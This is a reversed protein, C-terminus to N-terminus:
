LGPLELRAGALISTTQPETDPKFTPFDVASVTLRIRHGAEFRHANPWLRVAAEAPFPAEFSHCGRWILRAGDPGVDWVKGAIQFVRLATTQVPLRLTPAGTVEFPATVPTSTFTATDIPNPSEPVQAILDGMGPARGLIENTIADNALNASALDNVIRAVETGAAPPSANLAGDSALYTTMPATVLPWDAAQQHVWTGPKGAETRRWYDVQPGGLFGHDVGRLFQDLWDLMAAERAVEEAPFNGNAAHGGSSFWYHVPVGRADLPELIQEPHDGPFLQDEWAQTWFVPIQLDDLYTLPSRTAVDDTTSLGAPPTVDETDTDWTAGWRVALDDQTKAATAKYAAAFIGTAFSFKFCDNPNLAMNLDAFTQGVAAAKVRHDAAAPLLSEGGGQSYGTVGVNDTDIRSGFTAEVWDLVESFDKTTRAGFFDFLGESNGHGRHSYMLLAFAGTEVFKMGYAVDYANDKNSGGGHQRVILPLEAGDYVSDPLYVSAELRVGDSMTVFADTKSVAPAAPSAAAPSLGALGLVLIMARRKM